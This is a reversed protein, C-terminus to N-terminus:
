PDYIVRVGLRLNAVIQDLEEQSEPYAEYDIKAKFLRPYYRPNLTWAIDRYTGKERFRNVLVRRIYFSDPPGDYSPDLMREQLFQRLVPDFLRYAAGDGASKPEVCPGRQLRPPGSKQPVVNTCYPHTADGGDSLHWAVLTGKVVYTQFSAILFISACASLCYDYAVVTAHRDRIIQALAIASAIDGGVSRVVFLGDSTLENARSVDLQAPVITGFCLIRKDASLTLGAWSQQRCFAIARRYAPVDPITEEAPAATSFASCLVALVAFLRRLARGVKGRSAPSRNRLLGDAYSLPHGGVVVLITSLTTRGSARKGLAFNVLMHDEAGATLPRESASASQAPWQARTAIDITTEDIMAEGREFVSNRAAFQGISNDLSSTGLECVWTKTKVIRRAAGSAIAATCAVFQM